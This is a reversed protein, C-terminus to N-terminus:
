VGPRHLLGWTHMCMKHTHAGWTHEEVGVGGVWDVGIEGERERMRVEVDEEEWVELWM